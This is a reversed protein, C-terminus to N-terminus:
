DGRLRSAPLRTELMAVQHQLSAVVRRRALIFEEARRDAESLAALRQAHEPGPPTRTELLLTLGAHTILGGGVAGALIRGAREAVFVSLTRLAEAPGMKTRRQAEAMIVQRTHADLSLEVQHLIDPVVASLALEVNAPQFRGDPKKRIVSGDLVAFDHGVATVPVLRVIRRESHANVLDRFGDVGMLLNRVIKLRTNEDAHLQDLLDWKTIVFVIPARATLMCHVMADLTTQLISLGRRDGRHAQLLQMGDILAILADANAVAGLLQQQLTSGPADPDTLLEGPYELYGIDLVTTPTGGVNTMVSFDFERMEGRSTGSPWDDESSAVARYWRNLEILQTYPVKLFFGRDAPAQLRRYIGTLLLTKGSGQLGVTVVRFRPVPPDAAPAPRRTRKKKRLKMVLLVCLAIVVLVAVVGM